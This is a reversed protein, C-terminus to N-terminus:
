ASVEVVGGPTRVPRTGKEDEDLHRTMDSAMRYGMLAALDAAIIYPSGDADSGCRLECDGHTFLTLATM